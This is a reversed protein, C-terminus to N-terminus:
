LKLAGITVAALTINTGSFRLPMTSRPQGVTADIPAELETKLRMLDSRPPPIDARTAAGGVVERGIAAAIAEAQASAVEAARLAKGLSLRDVTM